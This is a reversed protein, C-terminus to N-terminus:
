RTPAIQMVFNAYSRQSMLNKSIDIKAAAMPLM